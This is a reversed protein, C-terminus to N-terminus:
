ELGPVPRPPRSGDVSPLATAEAVPPAPLPPPPDAQPRPPKVQWAPIYGPPPPERDARDDWPAPRTIQASRQATSDSRRVDRGRIALAVVLGVAVGLLRWRRRTV